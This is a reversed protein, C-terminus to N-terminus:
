GRQTEQEARANLAALAITHDAAQLVKALLREFAARQEETEVAHRFCAVAIRGAHACALAHVVTGLQPARKTADRLLTGSVDSSLVEALRLITAEDM